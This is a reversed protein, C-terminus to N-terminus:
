KNGRQSFVKMRHNPRTSTKNDLKLPNTRKSDLRSKLSKLCLKFVPWSTKYKEDKSLKELLAVASKTGYTALKEAIYENKKADDPKMHKYVVDMAAKNGIRVLSVVAWKWRLLESPSAAVRAAVRDLDSTLEANKQLGALIIAMVDEALVHQKTIDGDKIKRRLFAVPCKVGSNAVQEAAYRPEQERIHAERVERRARWFRVGAQAWAKQESVSQKMKAQLFELAKTAAEREIESWGKKAIKSLLKVTKEDGIYALLEFMDRRSYWHGQQSAIAEAVGKRAATPMFSVSLIALPRSRKDRGAYCHRLVVDRAEKRDALKALMVWALSTALYDKENAIRAKLFTIDAKPFTAALNSGLKEYLSLSTRKIHGRKAAAPVTRAADAIAKDYTDLLEAARAPVHIALVILSIITIGRM